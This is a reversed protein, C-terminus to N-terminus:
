VANGAIKCKRLPIRAEGSNRPKAASKIQRPDCGVVLTKPLVAMKHYNRVKNNQCHFNRIDM